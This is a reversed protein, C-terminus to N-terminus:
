YSQAGTNILCRAAQEQAYDVADIASKGAVLGAVLTACFADGCGTPDTASVPKTSRQQWQAGPTLRFRVGNEGQTVFVARITADLTQAGVNTQLTEWETNNLLLNPRRALMPQLVNRRTVDVYQGPMWYLETSDKIYPLRALLTEDDEPGAVWQPCADIAHKLESDPPEFRTSGPYFGTLQTGDKRTFIYAEACRANDQKRMAQRNIDSAELHAEYDAPCNDGYFVWPLASARTRAFAYALNMGCGGWYMQPAHLKGNLDGTRFGDAVEAIHDVALTGTVLVTM